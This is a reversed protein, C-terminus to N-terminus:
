FGVSLNTELINFVLKVEASAQPLFRLQRLNALTLSLTAVTTAVTPSLGLRVHSDMPFHELSLCTLPM